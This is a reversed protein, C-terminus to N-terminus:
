KMVKVYATIGAIVLLIAVCIALLFAPFGLIEELTACQQTVTYYGSVWDRGGLRAAGFFNLVSEDTTRVAYTRSSENNEVCLDGNVYYFGSKWGQRPDFIEGVRGDTSTVDIKVDYCADEFDRLTVTVNYEMCSGEVDLSVTQALASPIFVLSVLLALIFYKM